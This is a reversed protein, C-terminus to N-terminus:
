WSAIAAFYWPTFNMTTAGDEVTSMAVPVPSSISISNRSAASSSLVAPRRVTTSPACAHFGTKSTAGASSISAMTVSRPMMSRGFLMEICAINPYYPRGTVNAQKQQIPQAPRRGIGVDPLHQDTVPVPIQTRGPHQLEQRCSCEGPPPITTAGERRAVATAVMTGFPQVPHRQHAHARQDIVADVRQQQQVVRGQMSPGRRGRRRTGDEGCQGIKRCRAPHKEPVGLYTLLGKIQM